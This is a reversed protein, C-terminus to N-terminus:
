VDASKKTGDRWKQATNGTIYAAVTGITVTAYVEGSIKGLWILLFTGAGSLVTLLFRRGGFSEVFARM